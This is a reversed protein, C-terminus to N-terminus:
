IILARPSVVGHQRCHYASTAAHGARYERLRFCRRARRGLMMPPQMHATRLSRRLAEIANRLRSLRALRFDKRCWAPAYAAIGLM